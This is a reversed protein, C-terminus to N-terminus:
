HLLKQFNLGLQQLPHGSLHDVHFVAKGLSITVVIIDLIINYFSSLSAINTSVLIVSGFLMFILAGITFLFMWSILAGCRLSSTEQTFSIIMDRDLAGNIGYNLLPFLTSHLLLNYVEMLSCSRGLLTFVFSFRLKCRWATLSLKISWLPSMHIIWPFHLPLTGVKICCLTSDGTNVISTGPDIALM